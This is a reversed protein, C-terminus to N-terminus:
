AQIRIPSGVRDWALHIPAQAAPAALGPPQSAPSAPQGSLLVSLALLILRQSFGLLSNNVIYGRDRTAM